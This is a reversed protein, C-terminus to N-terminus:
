KTISVVKEAKQPPQEFHFGLKAREQADFDAIAQWFGSFISEEAFRQSAYAAAKRGMEQRKGDELLCRVTEIFEEDSRAIIGTEGPDILEQPGGENMVICALGSAQAEIVVNGFTDLLGPYVFLDSSAYAAALDDGFKAGTMVFRSFSSTKRRMEKFYPGDGVCYLVFNECRSALTEYLRVLLDVNKDKSIRGVFLLKCEAKMPWYNERRRAPSFFSTDVWRELIATRESPIGLNHIDELYWKSPSFVKDAYRYFMKTLLLALEAFMPDDSVNFAIRPLDTHYIGYLPIRLLKACIVGMVGVPGPTSVVISDVDEDEIYKLVKLISPVAINVKEYGPTPFEQVPPFNVVHEYADLNASHSTVIRLDKDRKLAADLFVRCTKSVGDMNAFSDTFWAAKPQREIGLWKEGKYILDREGHLNKMTMMYSGIVVPAFLIFYHLLKPKNVVRVIMEDLVDSALNFVSENYEERTMLGEEFLSKFSVNNRIIERIEEILNLKAGRPRRFYNFVRKLRKAFYAKSPIKMPRNREFIRGLITLLEGSEPGMKSRYYQYAISNVQHALTLSGDSEGCPRTNGRRLGELLGAKTMSDVEVETCCTGIFLGSHDDTGAYVFKEWPREGIPALGHKDALHEIEEKTLRALVQEVVRNLRRLRTGNLVEHRKFLLLLKEFHEWTMRGNVKHLPHACFHLINKHNLYDVLQYIDQRAEQIDLHQRESIGLCVVRVKMDGPFYTTVEEGAIVNDYHEIERVGAITNHDTITVFNMGRQMATERVQEPSTFSEPCGLRQMLWLAPRDSAWSHCHLDIRAIRTEVNM